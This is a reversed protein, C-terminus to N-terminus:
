RDSKAMRILRVNCWRAAAERTVWGNPSQMAGCCVPSQQESRTTASLARGLETRVRILPMWLPTQSTNIQLLRNSSANHSLQALFEDAAIENAAKGACSCDAEARQEVKEDLVAANPMEMSMTPRDRRILFIIVAVSEKNVLVLMSVLMKVVVVVVVLVVPPGLIVMVLCGIGLGVSLRRLPLRIMVFVGVGGRAARVM